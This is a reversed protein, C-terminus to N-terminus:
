MEEGATDEPHLEHPVVISAPMILEEVTTGGAGAAGAAGTAGADTLSLAGAAYATPDLQLGAILVRTQMLVEIVSNRNRNFNLETKENELM